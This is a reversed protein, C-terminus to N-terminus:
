LYQGIRGEVVVPEYVTHTTITESILKGDVGFHRIATETKAVEKVEIEEIDDM